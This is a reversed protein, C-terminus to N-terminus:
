SLPPPREFLAFDHESTRPTWDRERGLPSDSVVPYVGVRHESRNALTRPFVATALGCGSPCSSAAAWGPGSGKDQHGAKRCCCVKSRKCCQMGCDAQEGQALLLLGSSYPALLLLLLLAVSSARSNQVRDIWTFRKWARRLKQGMQGAQEEDSNLM